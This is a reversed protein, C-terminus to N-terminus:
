GWCIGYLSSSDLCQPQSYMYKLHHRSSRTRCQTWPESRNVTGTWASPGTASLARPTSARRCLDALPGRRGSHPVKLDKREGGNFAGFREAIEEAMSKVM